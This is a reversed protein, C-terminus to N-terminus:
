QEEAGKKERHDKIMAALQRISDSDFLDGELESGKIDESAETTTGPLIVENPIEPKEETLGESLNDDGTKEELEVVNNDSSSAEGIKEPTEKSEEESLIQKLNELPTNPDPAPPQEQPIEEPPDASIEKEEVDPPQQSKKEEEPEPLIEQQNDQKLEEPKSEQKLEESKSEQKLEEPKGEQKLEEPKSEQQAQEKKEEKM